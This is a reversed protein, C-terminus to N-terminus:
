NKKNLPGVQSLRYFIDFFSKYYSLLLKRYKDLFFMPWDKNKWFKSYNKGYEVLIQKEDEPLNELDDNAVVTRSKAKRKKLFIEISNILMNVSKTKRKRLFM